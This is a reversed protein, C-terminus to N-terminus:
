LGKKVACGKKKESYILRKEVKINQAGHMKIVKTCDGVLASGKM